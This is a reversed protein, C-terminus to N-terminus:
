DGGEKVWCPVKLGPWWRGSLVLARIARWRYRGELLEFDGQPLPRVSFPEIGGRYLQDELARLRKPPAPLNRWRPPEWIREWPLLRPEYRATM